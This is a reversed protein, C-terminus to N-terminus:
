GSFSTPRADVIDLRAIRYGAEAVGDELKKRLAREGDAQNSANILARGFFTLGDPRTELKSPQGDVEIIQSVDLGPRDVTLEFGFTFVAAEM